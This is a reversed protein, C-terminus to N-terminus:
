EKITSGRVNLTGTLMINVPKKGLEREGKIIELLLQTSTAGIEETPISVGTIGSNFKMWEWDDFTCLGFNRGFSWGNKTFALSIKEATVGNASLIAIRDSSSEKYFTNVAELCEQECEAKFEFNKMQKNPYFESMARCYGSYRDVRPSITGMELSFFAVEEYGCEKLFKVCEYACEENNHEVTIIKNDTLLRRDALVIPIGREVVSLLYEDNDGSTNVILGDVQNALLGEIARVEKQPNEDSQAFLVQYGAEECSRTIGRLLIGAFPSGMDGIICGILGTNSSKLRQASRNPNYGLEDIVKAIRECTEESFYEYKHNLYRSITTKSVGCARAVDNITVKKDITNM